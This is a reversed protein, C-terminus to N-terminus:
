FPPFTMTSRLMSPLGLFYGFFIGIPLLIFLWSILKSSKAATMEFNTKPNEENESIWHYIDKFITEV